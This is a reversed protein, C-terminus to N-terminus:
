YVRRFGPQIIRVALFVPAIFLHFLMLLLIPWFFIAPAEQLWLLAPVLAAFSLYNIASQFGPKWHTTMLSTIPYRIPSWCLAVLAITYATAWVPPLDLFWFVLVSFFAPPAGRSTGSELLQAKMAYKMSCTVAAAVALIAGFGPLFAGAQWLFLMPVFTLGIVDTILDITEGSVIPIREAVKFRRALTGDTHDVFLVLLLWRVAADLNGLLLQQAAVMAFALGALTWLHILITPHRFLTM